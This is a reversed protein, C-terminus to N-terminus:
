TDSETIAEVPFLLTFQFYGTTQHNSLMFCLTVIYNNFKSFLTNM